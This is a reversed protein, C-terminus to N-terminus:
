LTRLLDGPRAQSAILAPGLALANAVVLVSAALVALLGAPVVPVPVAGLSAAFARWLVRGAAIGAPLGAILGVLAVTTAQWSVIAAIQHRLFGLIKLLGAERRRRGVSVLLLHVMTAVGFLALLTGILVPFNVSVGFNVLATPVTPRSAMSPYRSIERALAAQGAAGPAPHALLAYEVGQGAQRLCAPRAPGAPCQAGLYEGLTLAAGTGLGGTGFDSPFSSQGVVRFSTTRTAGDPTTVTVQVASGIHAGAQRMTTPGLSIQRSGAPVRGAITSLLAPGHVARFAIARVQVHNVAIEPVAAQTVQDISPDRVLDRLLPGTIARADQSSGSSTFLVPFPDGYLAPSAILHSLSAGFVATATLAAVALATGALATWAPVPSAERGRELAHRIGIVASAPAGLGALGLGVRGLAAPALPAPDPARRTGRRAPRVALLVAAAVTILAGLPLILGDAVLGPSPDALRAEGLPTLGSLAVAVGAAGVAGAAAAALARLVGLLVLERPSMGLAALVLNDTSAVASQRAIAQGIVVLGALTAVGALVWWGASQPRISALVAAAGGALHVNIVQQRTQEELHRIGADFGPLSAAGNRLRVYDITFPLARSNATAAFAPTTYLYYNPQQGSPFENEAAELGVVRLTVQPGRAPPNGGQALAAGQQRGSLRVHFVSGVRVGKVQARTDSALVEGAASPRPLRGAVLKTVQGLRSAPVELLAFNSGVPHTCTCTVPGNQVSGVPTVSAVGPVRALGPLPESTYLVADYGHRALFRPFASETRRAAVAATMTLGSVLAILLALALWSPWRQRFQSRMVRTIARM